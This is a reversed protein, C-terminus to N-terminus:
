SPDLGGLRGRIREIDPSIQAIRDAVRQQLLRAVDPYEELVRRFSSRRLGYVRARGNAVATAPRVTDILLAMEGVLTGPTASVEVEGARSLDLRGSMVLYGGEARDGERFLMEGPQLDRTEASFALLKLPEAPLDALFPVRKLVEIDRELTM